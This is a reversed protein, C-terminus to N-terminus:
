SDQISINFDMNSLYDNAYMNYIEELRQLGDSANDYNEVDLNKVVSNENVSLFKLRFEGRIRDLSVYEIVNGNYSYPIENKAFIFDSFHFVKNLKIQSFDRESTDLKLQEILEPTSIESKLQFGRYEIQIGDPNGLKHVFIIVVSTLQKGIVDLKLKINDNYPLILNCLKKYDEVQQIKSKRIKQQTLQLLDVLSSKNKEGKGNGLAVNWIIRNVDFDPPFSYWFGRCVLTRNQQRIITVPLLINGDLIVKEGKPEIAHSYKKTSKDFKLINTAVLNNLESIVDDENHFLKNVIEEQTQLKENIASLILAKIESYVETTLKKNNKTM